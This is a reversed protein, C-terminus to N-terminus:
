KAPAPAQAPAEPAPKAAPNAAPADPCNKKCEAPKCEGPKCEGPKCEPCKCEPCECKPAKFMPRGDKGQPRMMRGRRGPMMGHRDRFGEGRPPMFEGRPGGQPAHCCPVVVVQPAAPRAKQRAIACQMRCYGRAFHYCCVVIIATLLAIVFTRVDGSCNCKRETKEESM